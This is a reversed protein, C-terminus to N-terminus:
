PPCCHQVLTCFAQYSPDLRSRVRYFLSYPVDPQTVSTVISAYLRLLTMLGVFGIILVLLGIPLTSLSMTTRFRSVFRAPQLPQLAQWNPSQLM